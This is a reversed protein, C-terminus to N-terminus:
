LTPQFFSSISIDLFALFARVALILGDLFHFRDKFGGRSETLNEPYTISIYMYYHSIASQPGIARDTPQWASYSPTPVRLRKATCFSHIPCRTQFLALFFFSPNSNTLLHFYWSHTPFFYKFFVFYVFLFLSSHILILQSLFILVLCFAM